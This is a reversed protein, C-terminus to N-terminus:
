FSLQFMCQIRNDACKMGDYNVRRGWIYEIGTQFYANINYFVNAVAYQAYKYQDAWPTSGGHYREAYARVHSYTASCFVKPSFTYQVGGYAGWAMVTKMSSGDASPVLDMGLGDLDQIYSGIGKGFVGQWYATLKPLLLASGSVQVGYGVKDVNQAATLNRYYLNRLIGSLRIWSSGSDWSYQLALPIDPVRQAVTATRGDITTYSEFPLELGVSFKWDKKKGFNVGYRVGATPIATFSNPGEYDITPPCAAPDSFLNYDYGAQFGRYKLYAFQLVPCYNNLFNASIFAGIQNKDGPLAVMNLYIHSQQASINFKAGNGDMPHMPIASTTFEDASPIPHGMDVGVTTKIYGGLSLMFKHNKGVFAFSPSASVPAFDSPANSKLTKKLSDDMEDSGPGFSHTEIRENKDRSSPIGRPFATVATVAAIALLFTKKM